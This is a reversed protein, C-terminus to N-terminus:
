IIKVLLRYHRAKLAYSAAILKHRREPMGKIVEMGIGEGM